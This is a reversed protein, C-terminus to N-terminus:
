VKLLSSFFARPNKSLDKDLLVDLTVLCVQQDCEPGVAIHVHLTSADSLRITLLLPVNGTQSKYM